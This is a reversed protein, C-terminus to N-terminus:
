FWGWRAGIARELQKRGGAVVIVGSRTKFRRSKKALPFWLVPQAKLHQAVRVVQGIHDRPFRDGNEKRIEDNTFFSFWVKKASEGSKIEVAFREDRSSTILADCNGLRPVPVDARLEWGHPLRLAAVAKREVRVGRVRYYKDKIRLYAVVLVAVVALYIWGESM